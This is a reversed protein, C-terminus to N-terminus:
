HREQVNGSAEVLKLLKHEVKDSVRACIEGLSVFNM